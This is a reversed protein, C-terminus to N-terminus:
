KILVKKGNLIYLGRRLTNSVRRGSMDIILDNRLTEVGVTEISLAQSQQQMAERNAELYARSWM